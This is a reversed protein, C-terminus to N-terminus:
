FLYHAGVRGRRRRSGGGGSRSFRQKLDRLREGFQLERMAQATKMKMRQLKNM